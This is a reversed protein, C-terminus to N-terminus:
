CSAPLSYHKEGWGQAGALVTSKQLGCGKTLGIKRSINGTGIEKPLDVGYNLYKAWNFSPTPPVTPDGLSWLVQFLLIRCKMDVNVLVQVGAPL